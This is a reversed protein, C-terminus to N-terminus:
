ADDGGGAFLDGQIMAGQYEATVTEPERDLLTAGYTRAADIEERDSEFPHAWTVSWGVTGGDLDVSASVAGFEQTVLQIKGKRLPSDLGEALLGTMTARFKRIKKKEDKSESVATCRLQQIELTKM